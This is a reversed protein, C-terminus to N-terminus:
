DDFFTLYFPNFKFYINGIQLLTWDLSVYQFWWSTQSPYQVYKTWREDTHTINNSKPPCAEDEKLLLHQPIIHYRKNSFNRRQAQYYLCLPIKMYTAKLIEATECGSASAASTQYMIDTERDNKAWMRPNRYTFSYQWWQLFWRLMDNTRRDLMGPLEVLVGFVNELSLKLYLSASRCILM